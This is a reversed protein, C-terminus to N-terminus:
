PSPFGPPPPAIFDPQSTWQGYVNPESNFAPTAACPDANFPQDTWDKAKLDATTYDGNEGSKVVRSVGGTVLLWMPGGNVNVLVKDTWAVRRIQAGAKALKEAAFWDLSWAM